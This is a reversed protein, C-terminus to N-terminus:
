GRRPPRPSGGRRAAAPRPDSRSCRWCRTATRSGSAGIRGCRGRSRPRGARRCTGRPHHGRLFSSGVGLRELRASLERALRRRCRQLIVRVEDTSGLGVQRAIAEADADRSYKLYVVEQEVPDLTAAAAEEVLREREERLLRAFVPEMPDSADLLGDDTLQDHRKRRANACHNRAIAFLWVRFRVHGRFEPLKRWATLLADQVIEDVVHDGFGPLEARVM